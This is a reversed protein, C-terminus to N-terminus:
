EYRGKPNQIKESHNHDYVAFNLLLLFVNDQKIDHHCFGKEHVNAVAEVMSKFIPCRLEPHKALYGTDVLNDVTQGLREMITIPYSLQSTAPEIVELLSVTSQRSDKFTVQLQNIENRIQKLSAPTDIPIKIAVELGTKSDIGRYVIGFGGRALKVGTNWYRPKHAVLLNRSLPQAITTMYRPTLIGKWISKKKGLPPQPARSIRHNPNEVPRIDPSQDNKQYRAAAPPPTAINSHRSTPHFFSMRSSAQEEEAVAPPDDVHHSTDANFSEMSPTRPTRTAAATNLIFLSSLLIFHM